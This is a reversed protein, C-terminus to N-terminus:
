RKKGKQKIGWQTYVYFAKNTEIDIETPKKRIGNYTIKVYKQNEDPTSKCKGTAKDLKSCPEVKYNM